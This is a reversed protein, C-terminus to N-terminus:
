GVSLFVISVMEPSAPSPLVMALGSFLCFLAGVGFALSSALEFYGGNGAGFVQAIQGSGLGFVDAAVDWKLFM